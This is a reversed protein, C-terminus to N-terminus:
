YRVRPVGPVCGLEKGSSYRIDTPVPRSEAKAKQAKNRLSPGGQLPPPPPHAQSPGEGQIKM